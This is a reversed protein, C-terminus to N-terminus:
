SRYIRMWLTYSINRHDVVVLRGDSLFAIGSYMPKMVDGDCHKLEGSMIPKLAVPSATNDTVKETRQSTLRQPLAISIPVKDVYLSKLGDISQLLDGRIDSFISM